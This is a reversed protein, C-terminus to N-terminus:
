ISPLQKRFLPFLGSKDISFDLATLLLHLDLSKLVELNDTIAWCQGPSHIDNSTDGTFNQNETM